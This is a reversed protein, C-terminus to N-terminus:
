MSSRCQQLIVTEIVCQCERVAPVEGGEVEQLEEESPWTQEGEMPDPIVESVLSEQLPVGFSIFHYLDCLRRKHTTQVTADPM